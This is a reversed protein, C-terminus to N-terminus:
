GRVGPRTEARGACSTFARRSRRDGTTSATGISSERPAPSGAARSLACWADGSTTSASRRRRRARPLTRSRSASAGGSFGPVPNPAIRLLARPGRTSEGEAERAVGTDIWPVPINFTFDDIGQQICDMRIMRVTPEEFEFTVLHGSGVNFEEAVVQGDIDYAIMLIGEGPGWCNDQATGVFDTLAPGGTTPDVFWALVALDGGVHNPQSLSCWHPNAYASRSSDSMTFIVGLSQWQDGVTYGQPVPSGDPYTDFDIIEAARASAALAALCAACALVPLLRVKM